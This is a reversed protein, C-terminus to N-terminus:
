NHDNSKNSEELLKQSNFSDTLPKLLKQLYDTKHEDALMEWTFIEIIFVKDDGLISKLINDKLYSNGNLSTKNRMFHHYGHIDIAACAENTRPDYVVIDVSM